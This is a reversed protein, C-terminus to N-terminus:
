PNPRNMGREFFTDGSDVSYYNPFGAVSGNTQLTPGHDITVSVSQANLKYTWDVPIVTNVTFSAPTLPIPTFTQAQLSALGALGLAALSTLIRRMAKGALTANLANMVPVAPQFRSTKMSCPNKMTSQQCTQGRSPLRNKSSDNIPYQNRRVPQIPPSSLLPADGTVLFTPVQHHMARMLMAPCM